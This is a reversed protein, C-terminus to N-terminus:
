SIRGFDKKLIKLLNITWVWTEFSGGLLDAIVKEQSRSITLYLIEAL